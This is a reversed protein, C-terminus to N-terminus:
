NASAITVDPFAAVVAFWFSSRSPVQVLRTDSGGVDRGALDFAIGTARDVFGAPSPTLELLAGDLLGSFAAGAGTNSLVVVPQGDVDFTTVSREETVPVAVADTAGDVLVVRTAPTLRTDELVGEAVPFPILGQDVRDAYGAFRDQSYDRNFSLDRTLVLTGPHLEQWQSWTMTTSTLVTLETDTLSGVISRGAVQFWYSGTQRDVMVLDNDFLASTNSFRLEVAQGQSEIVRSFVVGSDCLPCYSILVAQNDLIVNVIEHLALIKHPNAFAQGSEDVYGLIADDPLLWPDTAPDIYDPDDIPPIADLLAIRDQPTSSALTLPGGGFTDFVVDELAVSATGTDVDPVEYVIRGFENPTPAARAPIPTPRPTPTATAGEASSAAADSSTGSCATLIVVSIAVLALLRHHPLRV